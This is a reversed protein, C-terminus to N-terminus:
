SLENRKRNLDDYMVVSRSVARGFNYSFVSVPKGVGYFWDKLILVLVRELAFDPWDDVAMGPAHENRIAIAIVEPKIRVLQRFLDAEEEVVRRKYQSEVICYRDIRVTPLYVVQCDKPHFGAAIM